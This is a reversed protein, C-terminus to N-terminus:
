EEVNVALALVITTFFCFAAVNGRHKEFHRCVDM